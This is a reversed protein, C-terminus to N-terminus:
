IELIEKEKSALIEDVKSSSADTQEQVRELGRKLEDQSIEKSKELEKLMENADRRANRLAIRAGEGHQKSQKVMDKRREENLSPIPLRIMEGDNQPMIGVDSNMISKEIESILNREYPRVTLMRADPVSLVAVQNLPTPQGYYNVRIGDLLGISARGTRLKALQARLSVFTSEAETRLQHLIDEIMGM